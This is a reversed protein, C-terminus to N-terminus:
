LLKAEIAVALRDVADALREDVVHLLTTWDDYHHLDAAGDSIGRLAVLPLAFRQCARLVAFTEMDVMDADVRHYGLGTVIDSGTSLRATPVSPIPTPLPTDVPHDLFPTVGKVFGLPSADIDRWSVSSAQYVHGQDLTRSGASGLSVVLEPKDGAMTLTQLAVGTALAAEIPGVGTMLPRIRAKLHAGYEASAAMVFLVRRGGLMETAADITGPDLESM